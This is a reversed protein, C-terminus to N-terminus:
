RRRDAGVPAIFAGIAGIPLNNAGTPTQSYHYAGIFVIKNEIPAADAIRSLAWKGSISDNSHNTDDYLEWAHANFGRNIEQDCCSLCGLQGKM